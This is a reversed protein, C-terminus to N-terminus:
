FELFPPTMVRRQGPTWQQGNTPPQSAPKGFVQEQTITLIPHAHPSAIALFPFGQHSPWM